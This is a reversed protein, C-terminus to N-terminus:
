LMCIILGVTVICVSDAIFWLSLFVVSSAKLFSFARHLVIEVIYYQGTVIM